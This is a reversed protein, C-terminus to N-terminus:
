LEEEFMYRSHSLPHLSTLSVCWARQVVTSALPMSPLPAISMRILHPLLPPSLFFFFPTTTSPSPSSVFPLANASVQLPSSLKMAHVNYLEVSAGPRLGRGGNVCHHDVMYLLVSDDLKYLGAEPLM